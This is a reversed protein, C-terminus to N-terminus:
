YEFTINQIIVGSDIKIKNQFIQTKIASLDVNKYHFNFNLNFKNKCIEIWIQVYNKLQNKM